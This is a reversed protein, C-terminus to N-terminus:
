SLDPNREQGHSERMQKRLAGNQTRGPWRITLSLRTENGGRAPTPNRVAQLARPWPKRAIPVKSFSEADRPWRQVEAHARAAFCNAERKYGGQCLEPVRRVVQDRGHFTRFLDTM